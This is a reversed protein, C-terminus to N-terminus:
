EVYTRQTGITTKLAYWPDTAQLRLWAVDIVYLLHNNTREFNDVATQFCNLLTDIYRCNVLYGSTTRANVLRYLDPTLASNNYNMLNGSLICADMYVGDLYSLQKYLEEKSVTFVFDDEFIIINSYEREKAIRLVSIHSLGRGIDVSDCELASFREYTLKNDPNPQEISIIDMKSFEDEMANRRDIHRDLNIYFIRDVKM